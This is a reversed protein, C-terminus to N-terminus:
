NLIQSFSSGPRDDFDASSMSALYCSSSVESSVNSSISITSFRHSLLSSLDTEDVHKHVAKVSCINQRKAEIEGLFSCDFRLQRGGGFLSWRDVVVVIKVDRKGCKYNLPVESCRGGTLLPWLKPTGLTTTTSLNSQINNDFITFFKTVDNLSKSM